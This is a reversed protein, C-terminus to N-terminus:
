PGAPGRRARRAELALRVGRAAMRPSLAAAPPILAASRVRAGRARLRRSEVLLDTCALERFHRSLAWERLVAAATATDAAPVDLGEHARRLDQLMGVNAFHTASRVGTIGYLVSDAAKERVVLYDALPLDVTDLPALLLAKWVLVVDSGWVAPPPGVRELVSRRWLGYITLWGRRWLHARLRTRLDPSGLDPPETRVSLLRGEEDVRRHAPISAGAMPRAELRALCTRVFAPAYRDDHAAWAFFPATSLSLARAFNAAAGVNTENRHYRVRPDRGALSRCYAETGDTSANDSVVIEIDQEDQALLSDLAGALLPMGNHVPVGISARAGSRRDAPM